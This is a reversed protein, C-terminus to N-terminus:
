VVRRAQTSLSQAAVARVFWPARSEMAARSIFQAGIVRRHASALKTVFANLAGCTHAGEVDADFGAGATWIPLACNLRVEMDHRLNHTITVGIAVQNKLWRRDISEGRTCCPLARIPMWGRQSRATFTAIMCWRFSVQKRQIGGGVRM